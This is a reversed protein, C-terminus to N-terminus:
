GEDLDDKLSGALSDREAQDAQWAAPNTKVAAVSATLRQFFDEKEAKSKRRPSALRRLRVDDAPEPQRVRAFLFLIRANLRPRVLRWRRTHTQQTLMTEVM